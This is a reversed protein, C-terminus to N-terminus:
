NYTNSDQKQKAAVMRRYVERRSLGLKRAAARMAEKRELGEEQFRAVLSVPDSPPSGHTAVLSEEEPLRGRLVLCIEGKIQRRDFLRVLEALSGRQVEEYVKTLERAVAAPREPALEALDKLTRVLRTPAEYFIGTEPRSLATLFLERREQGQRPPFGWFTFRETPLGSIVLALAFATPGPIAEVPVQNEVAQQVLHCGPDSIGPLGADTVLALKQGALLWTVAKAAMQRENHEHYSTLATHLDFHALLGRTRRTDEALILDVEKLVRLARGSIDELNGIPTGVLYLKGPM